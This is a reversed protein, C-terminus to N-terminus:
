SCYGFSDPYWLIFPKSSDKLITFGKYPTLETKITDGKQPIINGSDFSVNKYHSLYTEDPIIHKETYFTDFVAQQDSQVCIEKQVEDKIIKM